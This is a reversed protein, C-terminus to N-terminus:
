PDICTDLLGGNAFRTERCAALESWSPVEVDVRVGDGVGYDHVHVVQSPVNAEIMRYRRIRVGLLHGRSRHHAHDTDVSRAVAQVVHLDLGAADEVLVGVIETEPVDVPTLSLSIVWVSKPRLRLAWKLYTL